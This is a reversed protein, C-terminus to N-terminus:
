GRFPVARSAELVDRRLHPQPALVCLLFELVVDLKTFLRRPDRLSLRRPEEGSEFARLLCPGPSRPHRHSWSPTSLAMPYLTDEPAGAGLSGKLIERRMSASLHGM